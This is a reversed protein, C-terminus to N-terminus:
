EPSMTAMRDPTDPASCSGWRQRSSRTWALACRRELVSPTLEGAGAPAFLCWEIDSRGDRAVAKARRGSRRRSRITTRPPTASTSRSTGSPPMPVCCWSGAGPWSAGPRRRGGGAPVHSQAHCGTWRPPGPRRRGAHHQRWSAVLGAAGLIALATVAAAAATPVSALVVVLAVLAPAAGARVHMPDARPYTGALSVTALCVAEVAGRTGAALAVASGLVAAVTVAYAPLDM